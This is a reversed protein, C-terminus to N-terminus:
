LDYIVYEAHGYEYNCARGAPWGPPSQMCPLECLQMADFSVYFLVSYSGLWLYCFVTVYTRFM